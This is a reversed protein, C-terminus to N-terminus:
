FALLAQLMTVKYDGTGANNDIRSQEVSFRVNDAYNHVVGLSRTKYGNTNNLNNRYTMYGASVGFSPVVMMRAEVSTAKADQAAAKQAALVPAPLAAGSINEMSYEWNGVHMVALQSQMGAVTGLAQLDFGHAKTHHETINGAWPAAAGPTNEFLKSPTGTTSGNLGFAGMSLEWGAMVPLDYAIRYLSSHTGDVDLGKNSFNSNFGKAWVGGTITVGHGGYFATVGTAPGSGLGTAQAANTNVGNDFIALEKHLGTNYSETSIFPGHGQGGFISFGARGAAIPKTFTTQMHILGDGNWLTNAGANEAVKGGIIIAVGGPASLDDRTTGDKSYSVYNSKVGLGANIALPVSTGLSGGTIMSKNGATMSFGSLKFQRGFSNLTTLAQTHCSMCNMEMQRAFAPTAQAEPATLALGMLAASFGLALQNRYIKM